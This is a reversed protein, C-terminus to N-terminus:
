ASAWIWKGCSDFAGARVLSHKAVIRTNSILIEIPVAGASCGAGGRKNDSDNKAILVTIIGTRIAL